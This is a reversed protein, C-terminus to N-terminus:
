AGELQAMYASVSHSKTQPHILEGIAYALLENTWNKFLHFVEAVLKICRERQGADLAIEALERHDDHGMSHGTELNFHFDGLYRLSVSEEQEIARALRATLAFLVNGTEEIAEIIVLREVPTADYLLHALQASLMRNVKTRDSYLSHLVATTPKAQDFGLTTYDELYWPWHHDDEYTHANVMLQHRDTSKEDRMVYKNLDGFALIFPAMCPYFSLRERPTMSDDRMFEFLPLNAYTRKAEFIARMVARM